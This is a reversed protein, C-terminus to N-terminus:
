PQYLEGPDFGRNVDAFDEVLDPATMLPYGGITEGEFADLRGIDGSALFAHYGTQWYEGTRTAEEGSVEAVVVEAWDREDGKERADEVLGEALLLAGSTLIPM